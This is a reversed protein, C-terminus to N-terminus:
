RRAISKPPQAMRPCCGSTGGSAHKTIAIPAYVYLLGDTAEALAVTEIEPAPLRWVQYSTRLVGGSQLVRAIEAFVAEPKPTEELSAAATVLDVSGSAVPLVDASATVFSADTVGLRGANAACVQTRRSAPDIGIVRADLLAEALPISPWGDGPGSDIVTRATPLAAAYDPM